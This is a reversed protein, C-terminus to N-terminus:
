QDRRPLVVYSYWVPQPLMIHPYDYGYVIVPMPEADGPPDPPWLWFYPEAAMANTAHEIWDM